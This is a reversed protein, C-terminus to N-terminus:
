KRRKIADAAIEDWSATRIDRRTGKKSKAPVTTRIKKIIEKKRNSKATKTSKSDIESLQKEKSWLETAKFIDTIDYKRCNKLIEIEDEKTSIVGKEKLVAFQDNIYQNQQAVVAQHQQQKQTTKTERDNLIKDIQKEVGKNIVRTLDQITPNEGLEKMIDEQDQKPVNSQKLAAIEAELQTLKESQPDRGRVGHQEQFTERASKLAGELDFADEVVEEEEVDEELSDDEIGEIEEEAEEEVVEEAPEETEEVPADVPEPVM